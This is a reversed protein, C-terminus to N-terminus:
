AAPEVVGDGSQPQEAETLKRDLFYEGPKTWLHLGLGLRMACRKLADSSADKARAGDHPWNHPQECDGVETIDVQRGDVTVSLRCLAGVVAQTLAPSGSKARQSKGQPNPAVAPLDGRVLDLIQFSYPGVAMLLRQVIVPHPVYSGGGSPNEHVYKSPFPVALDSLQSM